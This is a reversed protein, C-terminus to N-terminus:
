DSREQLNFFLFGATIAIVGSCCSFSRLDERITLFKQAPNNVFDNLEFAIAEHKGRNWWIPNLTFRFVGKSTFLVVFFYAHHTLTTSNFVIETEVEARNLEGLPIVKSWLLGSELIDCSCQNSNVRNCNLTRVHVSLMILWLGILLFFIGIFEVM